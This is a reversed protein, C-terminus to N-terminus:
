HMSPSAPPAGHAATWDVRGRQFAFHFTGTYDTARMRRTVHDPALLRHSTLAFRASPFRGDMAVEGRWPIMTPRSFSDCGAQITTPLRM